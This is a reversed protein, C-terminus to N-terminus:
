VFKHVRKHRKMNAKTSFLRKCEPCKAGRTVKALFPKEETFLQYIPSALGLKSLFQMIKLELKGLKRPEKHITIVYRYIRIM